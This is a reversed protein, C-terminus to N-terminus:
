VPYDVMEEQSVGIKIGSKEDKDTHQIIKILDDDSLDKASPIAAGEIGIVGAYWGILGFEDLGLFRCWQYFDALSQDRRTKKPPEQRRQQAPQQQPQGNPQAPSPTSSKGGTSDGEPLAWSPLQPLSASRKYQKDYAVWMDPLSYLYRGIGVHVAARKLADSVAAKQKDGEKPQDSVDGIDQKTVTYMNPLILSLKCLVNAPGWPSFEAYWGGIGMVDDLRGMVDRADLYPFVLCKSEDRTKLLVRWGIDKAPFPAALRKRIGALMVKVEEDSM